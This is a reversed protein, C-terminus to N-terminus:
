LLDREPNIDDLRIDSLAIGLGEASQQMLSLVELYAMVRGSQFMREEPDAADQCTKKAALARLKLEYGLDFAYAFHVNSAAAAKQEDNM